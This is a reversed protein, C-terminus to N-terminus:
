PWEEVVRGKKLFITRRGAEEALKLDHTAVLITTGAANIDLLLRIVDAALEPDLNGTPED